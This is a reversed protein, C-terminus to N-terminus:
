AAVGQRAKTREDRQVISAHADFLLGPPCGLAKEIKRANEPRVTNRAGSHLHGITSHSIGAQTALTRVTLDKFEMYQRLMQASKLRM